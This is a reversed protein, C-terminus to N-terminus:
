GPPGEPKLEMAEPGEPPTLPSHPLLSEPVVDRSDEYGTSGRDRVPGTHDLAVSADDIQTQEAQSLADNGHNAGYIADKSVDAIVMVICDQKQTNESDSQQQKQRGPVVRSVLM